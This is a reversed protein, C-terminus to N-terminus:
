KGIDIGFTRRIDAVINVFSRHDSPSGAITVIGPRDPHTVRPHGSNRVKDTNFGHRDLARYLEPMSTPVARGPGGSKARPVKVPATTVTPVTGLGIVVHDNDFPVLARVRAGTYETSDMRTSPGVTVPHTLADRVDQETVGFQELQRVAHQTLTMREPHPHPTAPRTPTTPSSFAPVPGDAVKPPAPLPRAPTDTEAQGSPNESTSGHPQEAAASGDPLQLRIPGPLSEASAAKLCEALLAAQPRSLRLAQGAIDLLTTEDDDSTLTVALTQSTVTLNM